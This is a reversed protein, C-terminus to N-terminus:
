LTVRLSSLTLTCISSYNHLLLLMCTSSPSGKSQSEEESLVDLQEPLARSKSHEFLVDAQFVKPENVRFSGPLDLSASLARMYIGRKMAAEDFPCSGVVVSSLYVLSDMFYSLLAGQCGLVNWKLIKDSCSMSLTPDGRGPKTRLVGVTHYGLGAQLPDQKGGPVCKAGTRYLDKCLKHDFKVQNIGDQHANKSREAANNQNVTMSVEEDILQKNDCTKNMNGLPPCVIQRTNSLLTNTACHFEQDIESEREKKKDHMCFEDIPIREHSERVSDNFTRNDELCMRKIPKVADTDHGDHNHRKLPEILSRNGLQSVVLTDDEEEKPFISADGGLIQYHTM